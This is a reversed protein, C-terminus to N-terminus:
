WEDQRGQAIFDESAQQGTCDPAMGHLEVLKPLESEDPMIEIARVVIEHPFAEGAHRKLTGSVQVHKGAAKLVTERLENKFKCTVYSPGVVPYIRFTNAREHVNLLELMGSVAGEEEEDVALAANVTEVVQSNVPLSGGPHEFVIERIRKKLGEAIRRFAELLARPYTGAVGGNLGGQVEVFRRIVDGSLDALCGEAPLAEVTVRAPSSHTLNVVRVVVSPKDKAGVFREVEQLATCIAEMEDAFDSFLVHEGDDEHGLFRVTLQNDRKETRSRTSM